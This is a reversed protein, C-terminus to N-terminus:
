RALTLAGIAVFISSILLLIFGTTYLTADVKITTGDPTTFEEDELGERSINYIYVSWAAIQAAMAMVTLTLAALPHTQLFFTALIAFCLLILGSVVLGRIWKVWAVSVFKDPGFLGGDATFVTTDNGVTVTETYTAWDLFLSLVTLLLAVALILRTWDLMMTRERWPHGSIKRRNAFPNPQKVTVSNPQSFAVCNPEDIALPDPKELSVDHASRVAVPNPKELSVCHACHVARLWVGHGVRLQGVAPVAVGRPLRVVRGGQLAVSAQVDPLELGRQVTKAQLATLQLGTKGIKNGPRNILLLNPAGRVDGVAGKAPWKLSVLKEVKAVSMKQEWITAAVGAVFPSAMSTGSLVLTETRSFASAARIARGPAFMEVCGGWNSFSSRKDGQDTSGVSIVGPDGGPSVNCADGNDNGAAVVIVAGSRRLKLLADAIAKSKGGGLSLNVVKKGGEQERVWEIGEVVGAATGVGSCTLVRVPVIEAKKAVGWTKGAAISAVHTGHGNCDGPVGGFLDWGAQVRSTGDSREFDFHDARVGTDIVFIRVGKGLGKWPRYVGNKVGDIRDLGWSLDETDVKDNIPNSVSVAADAEAWLVDEEEGFWSCGKVPCEVLYTDGAEKDGRSLVTAGARVLGRGPKVQVMFKKGSAAAVLGAFIAAWVRM